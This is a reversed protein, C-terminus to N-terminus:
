GAAPKPPRKAAKGKAAPEDEPEDDGAFLTIAKIERAMDLTFAPDERRKILYVMGVGAKISNLNNLDTVPKDLFEELWELDGLSLDDFEYNKGEITINGLM